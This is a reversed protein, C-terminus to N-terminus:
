NCLQEPKKVDIKGAAFESLAKDRTILVANTRQAIAVHIYDYFSLLRHSREYTRAKIYDENTTKVIKVWEMEQFFQHVAPFATGCKFSLEKLVITSVIVEENNKKIYEFFVKATLWWPEKDLAGGEKKFLNLWICTDVYYVNM